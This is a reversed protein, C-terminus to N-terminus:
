DFEINKKFFSIFFSYRPIFIYKNQFIASQISFLIKSMKGVELAPVPIIKEECINYHTLIEKVNEPIFYYINYHPELKEIIGSLIFNRISWVLPISIVINSKKNTLSFNKNQHKGFIM